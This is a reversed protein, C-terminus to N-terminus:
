DGRLVRGPETSAARAAPHAAAILAALVLVGVAAVYVIPDIPAVEYLFAGLLRGTAAAGAVGLAVGLATVRMGQGLVLAVVARPTSGLAVRLGIERSRRAVSLSLVGFIGLCSLLLAVAGFTGTVLGMSRTGRLEDAVHDALPRMQAVPIGPELDAVTRRLLDAVPALDGRAAVAVRLGVGADAGAQRVPVYAQIRSPSAMEYHRVNAVVGVVTRWEAVTGDDAERWTVRRGIPDEGPWFHEAFREDVVVVPDSEPTDGPGFPRGRILPVGLTEFYGESVLNFLFSPREEPALPTEARVRREWSSGSLPVLLTASARTVDPSAELRAVLQDHFDLWAEVSGFTRPPASIRATLVGEPEFGLDVSALSSLSRIMLGSGILLVVSLAVQVVVLAHRFRTSSRDGTARTAAGFSPAHGARLAGLVPGTALLVGALASVAIGLALVSADLGIQGEVLAPIEVPLVGPLVNIVLAALGMGLAGGTLALALTEAMVLRTIEGRGAGLARRVAFDGARAEGRVLALNAVNAAAILLVLMAAGTLLLLSPRVRGLLLDEVTRVRAEVRDEPAIEGNVGTTVRDMESQAEVISRGDALRALARMGFSSGYEAWPLREAHTGMPTYLDVDPRPYGAGPPLVGVVEYPVGDLTIARGVVAPDGGLTNQWFGHGLVVRPAAGAETEAAALTRGLAADLGLVQFFDGLVWRADAQIAGDGTEFVYSSGASGGFLDFVRNRDKWAQYHPVSLSVGFGTAASTPDITVLREADPYPLSELLVGKTVAFMTATGGVGVALTLCALLAYAPRRLLARVSTHLLRISEM